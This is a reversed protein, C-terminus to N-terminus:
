DLDFVASYGHMVVTLPRHLSLDPDRELWRAAAAGARRLMAEDLLDAAILNPMGHQRLGAVDGAGRLKLDLEALDFGSNSRAVAELRKMSVAENDEAPDLNRAGHPTSGGHFLLCHSAHSGRGVRGRFQHLQAIGFREAAEIIMITANPVDMGVEVVSTTVLLDADGSAFRGMREQKERAPMRGHLLEIRLDPFVETRLREYEETASRVGLKDSEEVLPCIVFVQRGDGIESRVFQYAADRQHAPVVRTQVPQRGPPMDRLESLDVDGYMTLALSRPIPTATMGLFNPRRGVKLRLRQRQAVGFRHQEDIVVLGLQPLLVEDEILAHTGIVVADHGSALGQLVERRAPASTSGVLLRPTLGHPGLLAELTAHHQRALIETPAMLASQFGARNAMVVAMAAVVTKGSGVDGQLLRNMPGPAAMDTLIEHAARRQGGTLQFPLSAVFKRADDVDYPIVVGTALMRRRRARQAALQLLFLEGFALRDKAADAEGQSEPMHVSRLARWLPPMGEEDLIEAPVPDAMRDAAPIALAVQERLFRSSLKETEPYIAALRGVHSQRGSAREFTPNRLVLGHRDTQVKGYFILEMGPLLTKVLFGQNFWIAKCRGGYDDVVEAEVLTMNKISSRRKSVETVIGYVTSMEGPVMQAITTIDSSDEYRRPLHMLLDGVTEIGLKLLRKLQQPGVRPQGSMPDQPMVGRSAPVTGSLATLQPGDSLPV